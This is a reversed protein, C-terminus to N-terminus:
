TAKRASFLLVLDVVYCVYRLHCLRVFVNSNLKSHMEMANPIFVIPSVSLVPYINILKFMIM